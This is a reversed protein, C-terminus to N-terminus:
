EHIREVDKGGDISSSMDMKPMIMFFHECSPVENFAAYGMQGMPLADTGTFCFYAKADSDSLHFAIEDKKLLVSLPVVVAGTKLIGYYIIPFYPLNPCSIAIKDGRQIGISKLGNAVQNCAGQLQAYTLTIDGFLIAPTTPYRRASESTPYLSQAHNSM